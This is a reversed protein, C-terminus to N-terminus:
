LNVSQCLFARIIVRSWLLHLAMIFHRLLAGWQRSGFIPVPYTKPDHELLLEAEFYNFHCLSIVYCLVENPITYQLYAM